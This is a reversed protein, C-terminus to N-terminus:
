TPFLGRAAVLSGITRNRSANVPAARTFNSLASRDLGEIMLALIEIPLRQSAQKRANLAHDALDLLKHRFSQLM